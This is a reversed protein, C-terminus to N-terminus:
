FFNPSAKALRKGSSKKSGKNNHHSKNKRMQKEIFNFSPLPNSFILKGGANQPEVFKLKGNSSSSDNNDKKENGKKKHEISGKAPVIEVEGINTKDVNSDIINTKKNEM